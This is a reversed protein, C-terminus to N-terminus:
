RTSIQPQSKRHNVELPVNNHVVSQKQPFFTNARHLVKSAKPINDKIQGHIGALMYM